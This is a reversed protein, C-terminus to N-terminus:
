MIRYNSDARKALWNSTLVLILGVVNQFLGVITTIEYQTEVLGKRYVYTSIVDSVRLTADTQLNFIPDFGVNLITGMRLILMTSIVPLIAPMTIYWIRHFRNAGDMQAAEYLTTDIAAIAALYILISYGTEKWLMSILYIPVFMDEQVMFYIPSEFIGLELMIANVIGNTPSLIQHVFQGVVVWSLFYPLYSITQISKKFKMNTLENILLTFIITAPFQLLLTLLSIKITNLLISYFGPDTFVEIVHEFGVWDSDAIGRAMKFDKFGISIGYLPFFTFVIVHALGIFLFIYLIWYKKLSKKLTM